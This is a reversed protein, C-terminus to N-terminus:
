SLTLPLGPDVGHEAYKPGGLRLSVGGEVDKSPIFWRRGDAAHAYLYDYRDPIFLKIV